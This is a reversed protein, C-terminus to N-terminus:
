QNSHQYHYVSNKSEAQLRLTLSYVTPLKKSYYLNWDINKECSFLLVYSLFLFIRIRNM